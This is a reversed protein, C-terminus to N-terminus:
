GGSPRTVFLEVPHGLLKHTKSKFATLFEPEKQSEILHLTSRGFGGGSLRAGLHGLIKKSSECLHDLAPIGNEFNIQSREHSQDLLKGFGEM